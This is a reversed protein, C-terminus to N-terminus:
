EEEGLPEITIRARGEWLAMEEDGWLMEEGEILRPGVSEIGYTGALAGVGPRCITVDGEFVMREM